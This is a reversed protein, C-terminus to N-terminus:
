GPPMFLSKWQFNRAARVLFFYLPIFEVLVGVILLPIPLGPNYSFYILGVLGCFLWWGTWSDGKPLQLAGIQKEGTELFIAALPLLWLMYWAFLDQSLLTFTGIPWICRRLAAEGDGAPHLINWVSLAAIIGMPLLILRAPDLKVVKLVNQLAFVLPSVDSVEQFYGPLYGLVRSGSTLAYPLYFAVMTGLFALPMTWKGKPHRPRWLFPLLMAPYLKIAAAVGLLFGVWGDQERVRAWWAGVLFPLVLGDVHASHATEFILLPSWLFLLVRGASRGLDRLLGVLLLAAVLGGAAMVVQFWYIDDPLIRWLIWFIAEAAPPYITVVPKRNISPYIQQDRLFALEPADPPYRYPSIGHAQVRGDWVYRYMDDSLAPRTFVLIGLMCAALAFIGILTVRDIHDMRLILFCALAYVAFAAFFIIVFVYSQKRLDGLALASLGCGLMLFGLGALRGKGSCALEQM